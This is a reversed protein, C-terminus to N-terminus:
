DNFYIYVICSFIYRQILFVLPEVGVVILVVIFYLLRKSDFGSYGWHCLWHGIRVNVFIRIRLSFPRSLDRLVEIGLFMLTMLFSDGRKTLFVLYNTHRIFFLFTVLWSSIGIFFAYEPFSFIRVSYPILGM